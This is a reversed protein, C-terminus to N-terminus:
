RNWQEFLAKLKQNESDWADNKPDDPPVGLYPLARAGLASFCPATCIGGLQNRGVGPIYKYEPEDIVVLLVFRPKIAPAYGMFTSIHNKKSYVGGVVKESSGTKGAETYGLINARRATGGMKTTYRMATKLQEVIEPELVRKLPKHVTNDLLTEGNKRVIKRILTPKVEFGGNAITAYAKMMQLSTTLINHGMALSPPTAKSYELRGNPHIKGLRPLLGGSEGKLEIGTKTGFGFVEALTNL